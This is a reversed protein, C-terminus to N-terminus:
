PHFQIIIPELHHGSVLALFNGDWKVDKPDETGWSPPLWLLEKGGSDVVWGSKVCCGHSPPHDWPPKGELPETTASGFSGGEMIELEVLQYSVQYSRGGGPQYEIDHETYTHLWLRSQDPSFWLGWILNASVYQAILGPVRLDHLFVTQGRTFAVQSCNPSLTLHKIDPEITLTENNAVKRACHVSDVMRSTELDWAVLKHMDVAFLTSDFIKIDQTRMDLNLFQQSTGLLCNVVTVISGGLQVTAAYVQDASYVVQHKKQCLYRTDVEPPPLPNPHNNLHLLQIGMSGCCLIPTTFPSFLLGDFPLRLKLNSWPVYGTSTNQWVCIRDESTGCAFFCGNPSFQGPIINSQVVQTQLLIKSDQTDLVIASTMTVFSAHFSIQSFSFGGDCPPISLSSLTHLPLTSTPQLEKINIVHKGDMKLSVAFQLTDEHIWHTASGPGLSLPIDNPYLETGDLVNYTHIHGNGLILTIARQNGHFMVEGCGPTGVKWIVVGTQIDWLVISCEQSPIEAQESWDYQIFSCALLHGDPSFTLCGPLPPKIHPPTLISVRELTNPDHIQINKWLAAVIFQGCPSWIAHNNSSAYGVSATCSDWSTPIGTLVRAMPSYIHQNYLKQVISSQPTLPLASHYIHSTSQSIVEFFETVFRLCDTTTDLLTNTNSPAQVQSQTLM